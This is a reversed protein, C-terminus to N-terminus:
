VIFSLPQRSDQKAFDVKLVQGRIQLARVQHMEYAEMAAEPSAFKVFGALGHHTPRQMKVNVDAQIGSAVLAEYVEAEAADLPISGVFLTSSNGAPVNPRWLAASPAATGVAGEVKSNVKAWRAVCPAGQVLISGETVSALAFEAESRNSLRVFGSFSGLASPKSSVSAVLVTGTESFVSAIEEMTTGEPLNGLWLTAIDEGWATPLPGVQWGPRVPPAYRAPPVPAYGQVPYGKSYGKGRAPPAMNFGGGPPAFAQHQPQSQIHDSTAGSFSNQRAWQCVVPQGGVAIMGGHAANLAAQAQHSSGFRVFGSRAGSAALRSSVSANLLGYEAFGYLLDDNSCEAPLDGVWLTTIEELGSAYGAPGGYPGM